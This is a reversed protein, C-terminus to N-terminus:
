KKLIRRQKNFKLIRFHRGVRAQQGKYLICNFHFDASFHNIDINGISIFRKDFETMDSCVKMLAPDQIM